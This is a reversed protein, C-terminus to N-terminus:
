RGAGLRVDLGVTPNVRAPGDRAIVTPYFGVYAAAHGTRLEVGTAPSRFVTLLVGREDHGGSQALAAAPLAAALLTTLFPARM